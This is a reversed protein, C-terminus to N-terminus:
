RFLRQKWKRVAARCGVYSRGSPQFLREFWFSQQLYYSDIRELAEPQSQDNVFGMEASLGVAFNEAVIEVIPPSIEGYPYAFCEVAVGTRDEVLRKSNVIQARAQEFPLSSLSQHDIGHAGFNIGAAQLEQIKSWSMLERDFFSEPQRAWSSRGGCLGAVLLVTASLGHRALSPFARVYLNAFGDDFTLAVAAPGGLEDMSDVIREPRTVVVAQAALSAAQREFAAESTSIISGSDDISHYTLIARLM